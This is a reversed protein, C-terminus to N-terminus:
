AEAWDIIFRCMAVYGDDKLGEASTLASQRSDERYRPRFDKKGDAYEVVHGVAYEWEGPVPKGDPTRTRPLDFRPSLEPALYRLRDRSPPHFVEMAVQGDVRTGYVHDLIVLDGDMDQCWMGVCQDREEPTMDAFTRTVQGVGDCFVALM